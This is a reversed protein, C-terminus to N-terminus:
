RNKDKKAARILNKQIAIVQWGETVSKLRMSMQLTGKRTGEPNTLTYTMPFEALLDGGTPTIKPPASMSYLRNPWTAMDDELIRGFLRSPSKDLTM